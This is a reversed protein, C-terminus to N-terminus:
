PQAMHAAVTLSGEETVVVFYRLHRLQLGQGIGALYPAM